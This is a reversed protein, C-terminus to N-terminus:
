NFKRFVPKIASGALYKDVGNELAMKVVKLANYLAETTIELEEKGHSQSIAVYPMLVGNKIMEQAFLTRLELSVNGNGDKVVYNPSCAYGECYFNNQLNLSKSIENFSNKLKNGFSWFHDVVMDRELIELTKSFAGLGSMEAGHTTSTLFVRERGEKNIGGLEMFERKGGLAAVAFGNAMAKGFTCLDPEVDYFTQAGQLDWRFGTIMEDLIFLSGNDKCVNKVQKLFNVANTSKCELREGNLCKCEGVCPGVTSAPELIVCAIQNPYEQFLTELSAIDNYHFKLTTAQVGKNVGKKLVTSGIFWDDFSFFPHESPVAIYERGTYARSLKVAASTVTSGHKAFKVMDVSPIIDVLKEAARLETLSARTLNNGKLIESMVADAVEKNGYGINVSRLGMGYDLYKRGNPDYVYCGEAHSLISPANSPFQDDGRSYTHAGGPILSHLRSSYDM